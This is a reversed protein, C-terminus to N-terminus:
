GGSDPTPVEPVNINIEATRQDQNYLYLGGGVLLAAILLGAILGTFGSSGGEKDAM